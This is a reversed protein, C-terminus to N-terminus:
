SPFPDGWATKRALKYLEGRKKSVTELVIGGQECLKLRVHGSHVDPDALVRASPLVAPQKVAAIYSFKEDEFGMTAGKVKRHVSTREVRAAFHCWDGGEMPCGQQHPCPAILHAGLDILQDRVKRIREFGAPTGPELVLLLQKASQWAKAVLPARKENKIEGLSYSLVVADSSPIEGLSELNANQWSANKLAPTESRLALQKGIQSLEADIEVPTVHALMPFKEAFAWLATGPGSGLDTLSHIPLCSRTTIADLVKALAAFTAPMRAILYSLREAENTMFKLTGPQRYRRTLEERAESLKKLGISLALEEIAQKLPYPLQM